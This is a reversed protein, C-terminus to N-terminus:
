RIALKELDGTGHTKGHFAIPRWSEYYPPKAPTSKSSIFRNKDLLNIIINMISLYDGSWYSGVALTIRFHNEPLM